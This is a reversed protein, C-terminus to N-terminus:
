RNAKLKKQKRKKLPFKLNGKSNNRNKAKKNITISCLNLVNKRSKDRNM